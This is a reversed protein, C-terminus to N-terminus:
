LNQMRVQHELVMLAVIDSHPSLYAGADFLRALDTVNAGSTPRPRPPNSDEYIVNGMHTQSGHTGTVYWGGWRKSLPSRHDTLFTGAQFLPMGSVDPYVSRVMMGPVGLTAGSQHCQLCEDRRVIRPSPTEAQDLTFFAVGQRPDVSAFEVVDGGRVWGVAIQDNFYLARPMHPSIRAAQFSTKSFVLVQSSIPAQLNRLVSPLYGYDPDYELKAEGRQIRQQLLTVPDSLQRTAYQIAWDDFPLVYSGDLDAFACATLLVAAASLTAALRAPSM